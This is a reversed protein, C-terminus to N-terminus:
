MVANRYKHLICESQLAWVCVFVCVCLCVCVCVCVCLCVDRTRKDTHETLHKLVSSSLFKICVEAKGLKNFM